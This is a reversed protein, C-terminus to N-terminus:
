WSKLLDQAEAQAQKSEAIGKPDLTAVDATLYANLLARAGAEDGNEKLIEAYFNNNTGNVSYIQGAVLTNKVAAALYKTAKAMDGGLIGPIKFYGRGLTRYAGYSHVEKVGLNIILEMNTSLEPWKGLSSTVGNAQGWQGLSAGRYYLADGLLALTEKPLAKLRQLDADSVSTVNAVGLLKTAQDALDIGNQLRDLKTQQDATAVGVFYSAEAQRVLFTAKASPETTQAVLQAYLDQADQASKIGAANYDRAAYAKEAQAKLEDPTSALVSQSVLFSLLATASLVFFSKM